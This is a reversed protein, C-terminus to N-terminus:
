HMTREVKTALCGALVQIANSIALLHQLPDHFYLCVAGLERRHQRVVIVERQNVGAIALTDPKLAHAGHELHDM